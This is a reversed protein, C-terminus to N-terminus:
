PIFTHQALKPKGISKELSTRVRRRGAELAVPALAFQMMAPRALM